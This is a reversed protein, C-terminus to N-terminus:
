NMFGWKFYKALYKAVLSRFYLSPQIQIAL